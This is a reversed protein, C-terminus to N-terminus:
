GRRTCRSRWSISPSELVDPRTAPRSLLILILQRHQLVRQHPHPVDRARGAFAALRDVQRVVLLRRDLRQTMGEVTVRLLDVLRQRGIAMAVDRPEYKLLQGITVGLIPLHATRRREGLQGGDGKALRTVASRGSSVLRTTLSTM